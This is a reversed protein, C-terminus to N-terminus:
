TTLLRNIAEEGAYDLKLNGRFVATHKGEAYLPGPVQDQEEEESANREM